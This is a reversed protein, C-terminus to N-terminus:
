GVNDHERRTLLVSRAILWIDVTIKADWSWYFLIISNFRYNLQFTATHLCNSRTDQTVFHSRFHLVCVDYSDLGPHEQVAASLTWETDAMWWCESPTNEPSLVTAARGSLQLRPVLLTGCYILFERVIAPYLMTDNVDVSGCVWFLDTEPLVNTITFNRPM